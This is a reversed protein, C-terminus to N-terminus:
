PPTERPRPPLWFTSIKTEGTKLRHLIEQRLKEVDTSTTKAFVSCHGFKLVVTDEVGDLRGRAVAVAGDGKGDVVEDLDALWADVRAGFFRVWRNKAGSAVVSRRMAALEEVTLPGDTGLFLSYRVKPNRARANLERLLPAGPALDSAAQSLGDEIFAYLSHVQERRVGKTVHRWVDLAFGFRAMASGHNPTAVMVLQRVNGPDLRSDEVVARAILGGISHGVLSVGRRPHKEALKKLEASLLRASEAIAQDNPYRLSGVPLGEQRILRILPECQEPRSGLGPVVVVLNRDPAAKEWGKEFTLGFHNDGPRKLMWAERFQTTFRRRSAMVATRDLQIVLQPEGGPTDAPDVHFRMGPAMVLNIATQTARWKKSGLEFRGSPMDEEVASDDFGKARAVGCLVDAWAVHGDEARIFVKTFLTNPDREIRINAEVRESADLDPAPRGQGCIPGTLCTGVLIVLLILRM